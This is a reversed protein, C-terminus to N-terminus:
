YQRVYVYVYKRMFCKVYSICIINGKPRILKTSYSLYLEEKVRYGYIDMWIRSLWRHMRMHNIMEIYDIDIDIDISIGGSNKSMGKFDKCAQM